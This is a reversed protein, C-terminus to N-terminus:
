PQRQHYAGGPRQPREPSRIGQRNGPPGPAVPRISPADDQAPREVISAAQQAPQSLRKLQRRDVLGFRLERPELRVAMSQRDQREPGALTARAPGRISAARDDAQAQM